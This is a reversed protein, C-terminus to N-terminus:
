DRSIPVIHDLEVLGHPRHAVWVVTRGDLARLLQRAVEDANTEDLHETPEDLLVIPHGALLVRAVGIRQRQGASIQGGQDGVHTDMGLPLSDIWEGLGVKGMAIRVDDDTSEPRALRVNEVISSDFIHPLQPCWGVIRRVDAGNLERIEVGDLTMSGQYPLFGALAALLTSKGVGSSGVIGVRSGPGIRVDGALRMPAGGPWSSQVDRLVLEPIGAPAAAPHAPAPVLDPAQLVGVVREASGRVRGLSLAAAPMISVAEYTALPLLVLVALNVGDLQGARVAPIAVLLMAVVAGGSLLVGLSAAFASARASRLRLRSVDRDAAEIRSLWQANAGTLLLEGLGDVLGLAEANLQGRAHASACEADAAARATMLPVLLASLLLSVLLVLGAAPLMMWALIVSGVCVVIGSVYPVIVRLPLDQIADVDRVMRELLDGRRYAPVGAPAIIALRDYVALRLRSLARFASDHAVLREAYRLVGRGIGFARVAVIAIELELIPPQQAARSILWASTAMLGVGCALALAGLFIALLLRRWEATIWPMLRMVSSYGGQPTQWQAVDHASM